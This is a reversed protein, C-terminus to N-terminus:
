LRAACKLQVTRGPRQLGYSDFVKADTANLVELTTTLEFAPPRFRHSVGIDHTLQYPIEFKYEEQGISEWSRLFAHVYRGSYFLEVRGQSDALYPIRVSASWSAFLWPRNPIRDGAYDAFAGDHSENRSDQYSGTAGLSVTRTPSAWALALDVGRTRAAYVNQYLVYDGGIPVIQDRTDRLFATLEANYSGTRTSGLELVPGLNLNHSVEPTLEANGRVFQEDGFVEFPSPLRTAYEYSAKAYLWPEFRLRIGDGVGFRLREQDRHGQTGNDLTVDAHLTYVYNKAFAINELRGNFLGLQHELGSVVRTLNQKGTLHDRTGDRLRDDGTFRSSAPTVALQLKQFKGLPLSIVARGYYDTQWRVQDTPEPIRVEFIPKGFWDYVFREPDRLNTESRSHVGLLELQMGAPLDIAYRGTLGRTSGDRTAEGEPFALRLDSQIQKDYSSVFGKLTLLNAWSKGIVGAELAAGRGGYRDHFRRVHAPKPRGEADPAEVDISYDNRTTDGFASAEAYLGETSRVRAAAAVRTTGLSGVQYSAEGGTRKRDTAVLQIAGGLADAGFRIPVVGRYIEVREILGVPLDAAGSPFVLEIPVGDVFTRIQADWLGNLAIRTDSGLGGSRRVAVGQTRALVEGLDSSRKRADNLDVVTVAEASRRLRKSENPAGVVTIETPPAAAAQAQARKTVLCSSLALIAWVVSRLRQRDASM